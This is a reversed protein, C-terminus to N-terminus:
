VLKKMKMSRCTRYIKLWTKMLKPRSQQIMKTLMIPQIKMLFMKSNSRHRAYFKYKLMVTSKLSKMKSTKLTVLMDDLEETGMLNYKMIRARIGSIEECFNEQKVKLHNEFAETNTAMANNFEETTLLDNQDFRRGASRALNYVAPLVNRRREVHAVAEDKEDPSFRIM